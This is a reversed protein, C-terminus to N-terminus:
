VFLEACTAVMNSDKWKDWEIRAHCIRGFVFRIVDLSKFSFLDLGSM